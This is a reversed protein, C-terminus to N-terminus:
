PCCGTQTNSTIVIAANAYVGTSNDIYGEISTQCGNDTNIILFTFPTCGATTVNLFSNTCASTGTFAFPNTVALWGALPPCIASVALSRRFISTYSANNNSDICIQMESLLPTVIVSSLSFTFVDAVCPEECCGTQDQAIVTTVGTGNDHEYILETLCGSDLNKIRLMFKNCAGLFSPFQWFTGFLTVPGNALPPLPLTTPGTGCANLILEWTFEYNALQDSQWGYQSASGTTTVFPTITDPICPDEDPCPKTTLVLEESWDSLSVTGCKARVRIRYPSNCDLGGWGLTNSFTQNTPTGSFTRLDQGIIEFDYCEANTVADWGFSAGTTGCGLLVLNTPIDCPCDEAIVIAYVLTCLEDTICLTYNGYDVNISLDSNLSTGGILPINLRDKIQITYNGTNGTVNSVKILGQTTDCDPNEILLDYLIPCVPTTFPCPSGDSEINKINDCKSIVELEYSTNGNLGTIQDTGTAPLNDIITWIGSGAVKYRICAGTVMPDNATWEVTVDNPNNQIIRCDPPPCVIAKTTVPITVLDSMVSGCLSRFNLNVTECENLTFTHPLTIPFSTNNLFVTLVDGFTGDITVLNGICEVIRLEPIPCYECDGLPEPYFCQDFETVCCGDKDIWNGAIVSAELQEIKTQDNDVLISSIEWNELQFRRRNKNIFYADSGIMDRFLLDGCMPMSRIVLTRRNQTITGLTYVVATDLEVNRSVEFPSYEFLVCDFYLRKTVDYPFCDGKWEFFPLCCNVVEMPFKYYWTRQTVQADVPTQTNVRVKITYCTGIPLSNFKEGNYYLRWAGDEEAISILFSDLVDIQNGELDIIEVNFDSFEIEHSNGPLQISWPLSQGIPTLFKCPKDVCHFATEEISGAWEVLM